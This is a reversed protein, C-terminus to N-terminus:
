IKGKIIKYLDIYMNLGSLGIGLAGGTLSAAFKTIDKAKTFINKITSKSKKNNNDFLQQIDSKCNMLDQHLETYKDDFNYSNLENILKQEKITNANYALLRSVNDKIADLNIPIDESLSKLVDDYKSNQTVYAISKRINEYAIHMLNSLVLIQANYKVQFKTSRIELDADKIKKFLVNIKNKLSTIKEKSESVKNTNKTIGSILQNLVDISNELSEKQEKIHKRLSQYTAYSKSNTKGKLDNLDKFKHQIKYYNNYAIQANNLFNSVTNAYLLKDSLDGLGKIEKKELCFDTPINELKDKLDETKKVDKMCNANDSVKCNTDKPVLVSFEESFPAEFNSPSSNKQVNLKFKLDTLKKAIENFYVYHENLKDNKTREKAFLGKVGLTSLSPSSVNNDNKNSTGISKALSDLYNIIKELIKTIKDSNKCGQFYYNFFVIKYLDKLKKSNDNYEKSLKDLNKVITSNFRFFSLTGPAYKDLDKKLTDHTEKCMELIDSPVSIDTSKIECFTLQKDKNM